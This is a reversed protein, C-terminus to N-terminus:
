RIAITEKKVRFSTLLHNPGYKYEEEIGDPHDSKLMALYQRNNRDWVMFM